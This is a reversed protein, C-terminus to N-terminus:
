RAQSGSSGRPSAAARFLFATALVSPGISWRLAPFSANDLEPQGFGLQWIRAATGADPADGCVLLTQIAQALNQGDLSIRGDAFGRPRGDPMLLHEKFYSFGVEIARVTGPISHEKRRVAYEHLGQLTFGSHFGDVFDGRGDDSYTWSGDARQSAVVAEAAHDAAELLGADSCHEVMRAFLSASSAQVNIIPSTSSATYRLWARGRHTLSGLGGLIFRVGGIAAELSALRQELEYDDLLAQCVVTTTYINPEGAEMRGFRSVWPFQVGWGCGASTSVAQGVLRSSLERVYDMAWREGSRALLAAGQAFDALAKPEEHVPVKLLRRLQSGSRKGLQLLVRAALPSRKHVLRTAPSLLIDYPDYSKWDLAEGLEFARRATGVLVERPIATEERDPTHLKASRSGFSV